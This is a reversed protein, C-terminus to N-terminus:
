CAVGLQRYVAATATATASWAYRRTRASGTVALERRQDDDVFLTRLARALQDDRGPSVLAAADGLVERLPPIDYAVVATGCAMAELPPLGFGEYVSPYALVTAASYLAPLEARDVYGLHQAGQPPRVTPSPAGGIVLPVEALRCARALTDIDKRPGMGVFLVFRAPLDYRDQVQAVVEENAPVMDSAPALHVVVSDRGFRNRLREATFQSDAIVVDASRLAHRLAVLEGFRRQRPFSWPADVVSLDHITSVTPGRPRAPIHVDLGHVLDLSGPSRAGELFRRVGRAAPRIMPMVQEPLEGVSDGRVSAVLEAEVAFPIARM